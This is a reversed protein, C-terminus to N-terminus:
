MLDEAVWKVCVYGDILSKDFKVATYTISASYKSFKEINM